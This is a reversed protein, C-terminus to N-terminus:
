VHGVCPQIQGGWAAAVRTAADRLQAEHVPHTILFFAVHSTRFAVISRAGTTSRLTAAMEAIFALREERRFHQYVLISKESAFIEALEKHRVYKSSGKRGPACSPVEVGNDPDVFVLDATRLHNRAEAFSATREHLSDPVIASAFLADGLLGSEEIAAVRRRVPVAAALADFLPPDFPRWLDAAQLYAVFRGDTRGDDPTLMWWVGLRIGTGVRLARLLGYKRYDNIDGFYQDKM